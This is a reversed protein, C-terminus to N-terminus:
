GDERLPALDLAENAASFALGPNPGGAIVHVVNGVAAVGLGHRPTPMVPLVLWRGTEVDFAEVADFARDAEGGPAVIFGNETATAAIGGRASPMESLRRWAGTAPDFVEATALNSGIGGTRGGVAYVLNGHAAV